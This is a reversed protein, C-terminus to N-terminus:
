IEIQTCADSVWAKNTILVVKGNSCSFVAPLSGNELGVLLGREEIIAFLKAALKGTMGQAVTSAQVVETQSLEFDGALGWVVQLGSVEADNNVLNRVTEDAAMCPLSLFILLSCIFKM